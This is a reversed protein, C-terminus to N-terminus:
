KLTLEKKTNKNQELIELGVLGAYGGNKSIAKNYIGIIIDNRAMEIEDLYISVEDPKFGILM